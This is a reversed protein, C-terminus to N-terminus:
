LIWSFIEQVNEKWHMSSVIGSRSHFHLHFIEPRQWCNQQCRLSLYIYKPLYWIDNTNTPMTKQRALFITRQLVHVSSSFSNFPWLLCHSHSSIRIKLVSWLYILEHILVVRRWKLILGHRFDIPDVATGIPALLKELKKIICVWDWAHFLKCCFYNRNWFLKLIWYLFQWILWMKLVFVKFECFYCIWEFLFVFSVKAKSSRYCSLHWSNLELFLPFILFCLDSQYYYLYWSRSNYKTLRYM